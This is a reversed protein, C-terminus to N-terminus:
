FLYELKAWEMWEWSSVWRKNLPHQTEALKPLGGLKPLNQGSWGSYKVVALKNFIQKLFTEGLKPMNQGGLQLFM